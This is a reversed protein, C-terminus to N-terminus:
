TETRLRVGGIRHHGGVGHASMRGIETPQFAEDTM